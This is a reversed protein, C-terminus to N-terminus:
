PLRTDCAAGPADPGDCGYIGAMQLFMRHTASIGSIPRIRPRANNSECENLFSNVVQNAVNHCINRKKEAGMLFSLDKSNITDLCMDHFYDYAGPILVTAVRTKSFSAAHRGETALLPLTDAVYESCQSSDIHESFGGIQYTGCDPDAPDCAPPGSIRGLVQTRFNHSAPRFRVGHVPHHQGPESNSVGPLTVADRIMTCANPVLGQDEKLDAIGYGSMDVVGHNEKLQTCTTGSSQLCVATHSKHHPGFAPRLAHHLPTDASNFFLVDGAVANALYGDRATCVRYEMGPSGVQLCELHPEHTVFRRGIEFRPGGGGKGIEIDAKEGEARPLSSTGIPATDKGDQRDGIQRGGESGEAQAPASAATLLLAFSAASLVAHKLM